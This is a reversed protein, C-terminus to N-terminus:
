AAETETNVLGRVDIKGTVAGSILAARREKLKDILMASYAFVSDFASTASNIHEVIIKQENLPPVLVHTSRLRDARIGAATSGSSRTWLESQGFLSRFHSHLYASTMLVITMKMLIIRQGLAVNPQEILAVEGLPAETTLLLDGTEPFGRTMRAEYEEESIFVPDLAHNIQGNKIQAATILPIGFDQKEPTVGRYDVFQRIVRRLPLIDWHAPVLGLWEIGSDKMPADPNLGKTVARSIVAQRKEKLLEILRTQAEILADIKGTERDLFAAIATQEGSSPLAFSFNRIFEDPVRKQGGAGYMAGEGLKRFAMSTFLWHLFEASNGSYPRAVTLETTGFGIGGNLGRMVAGKGNEFCPTIKAVTVDGEAFYTYGTEVSGITRMQDLRLGGAEGVAEMPIFSVEEDRDRHSTESKSPNLGAVYRLRTEVWHSPVEDLWDLTSKRYDPYRAM